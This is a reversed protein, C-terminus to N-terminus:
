YSLGPRRGSFVRDSDTIYSKTGLFIVKFLNTFIVRLFLFFLFKDCLMLLIYAHHRIDQSGKRYKNIITSISYSEFHLITITISISITSIIVNVFVTKCTKNDFTLITILWLRNHHQQYINNWTSISISYISRIGNVLRPCITQYIKYFKDFTFQDLEVLDMKGNPLGVDALAQDFTTM